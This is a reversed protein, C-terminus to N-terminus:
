LFSTKTMVVVTHAQVADEAPVVPVPVEEADVTIEIMAEVVETVLHVNADKEQDDVDPRVRGIMIAIEVIADIETATTEVITMIPTKM